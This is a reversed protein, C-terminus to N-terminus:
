GGHRRLAASLEEYMEQNFGVLIIERFKRGAALVQAITAIMEYDESREACPM